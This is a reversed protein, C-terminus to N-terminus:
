KVRCCRRSVVLRPEKVKLDGSSKKTGCRFLLDVRRKVRKKTRKETTVRDIVPEGCLPCTLEM